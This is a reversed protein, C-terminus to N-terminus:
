SIRIGACEMDGQAVATTVELAETAASAVEASPLTVEVAEASAAVAEVKGPLASAM